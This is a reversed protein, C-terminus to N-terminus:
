ASLVKRLAGKARKDEGAGSVDDNRPSSSQAALIRRVREIEAVAADRETLSKMLEANRQQLELTHVVQM